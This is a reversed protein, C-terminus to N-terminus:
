DVRQDAGDGETNGLRHLPRVGGGGRVPQEYRLFKHINGTTIDHFCLGYNPGQGISYLAPNLFGLPPFRYDHAQQNAAAAM